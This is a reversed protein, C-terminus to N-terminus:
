RVRCHVPYVEPSLAASPRLGEQPVAGQGDRISILTEGERERRWNNSVNEPCLGWDM